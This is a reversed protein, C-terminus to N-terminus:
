SAKLSEKIKSLRSNLADISQQLEEQRIQLSHIGKSSSAIGTEQWQCPNPSGTSLLQPSWHAQKAMHRKASQKVCDFLERYAQKQSLPRAQSHHALGSRTTGCSWPSGQGHGPKKPTIFPHRATAQPPLLSSEAEEFSSPEPIYSWGVWKTWPQFNISDTGYSQSVSIGAGETSLSNDFFHNFTFQGSVSQDIPSKPLYHLKLPTLSQISAPQKTTEITNKMDSLMFDTQRIQAATSLRNAPTAILGQLLRRLDQSLHSPLFLNDHYSILDQYTEEITEAWFPAKGTSLEFLTAGLSWWDIGSTYGKTADIESSIPSQSQNSQIVADEAIVLVEPAIYDPTGVPQTCLHWPVCPSKNLPAAQLVAVSGFDTLLLRHAEAIVFNHPKIDRHVFMNQHLWDVAAVMQPAWWRIEEESLRPFSSGLSTMSCLRDWLSGYAAYTTLLHLSDPTQFAAILHPFLPVSQTRALHHIHRENVLSLQTGARAAYAKQMTKMAYVQGGRAYQVAEVAGFQGEGLSGLVDFDKATLRASEIQDLQYQSIDARGAWAKLLLADLTAAHQDALSSPPFIAFANHFKFATSANISLLNSLTNYRETYSSAAM